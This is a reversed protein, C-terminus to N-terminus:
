VGSKYLLVPTHLPKSIKRIKAGFCLNHTIALETCSGLIDIRMNPTEDFLRLANTQDRVSERGTSGVRVPFQFIVKCYSSDVTKLINEPLGM